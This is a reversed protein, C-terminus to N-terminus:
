QWSLVLYEVEEWEAAARVSGTPPASILASRFQYSSLISREHATLGKPLFVNEQSFLFLTYFFM